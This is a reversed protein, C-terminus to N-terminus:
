QLWRAASPGSQHSRIFEAADVPKRVPTVVPRRPVRPYPDGVAAHWARLQAQLAAPNTACASALCSAAVASMDIGLRAGLGSRWQQWAALAARIGTLPDAIADGVFGGHGTATRLAASLGGAVGCDDGFGIWNAADGQTGHGTITIWVLGPKARLLEAADIGLQLLARPRAAEIVIDAGQLLNRLAALEEAVSFDLTLSTKGQNLLEYFSQDSDVLRDPRQRSEVKTVESGALWLLHAALPGAWLASLDVVRPKVRSSRTAPTGAVLTLCDGGPAAACEHEAAIALGLLRGRALLPQADSAAIASTIARADHLDRLEIDLLAPLSERDAPRALNLAISDDRAEYLQCGGGSAVRGPIHWNFLMAREGLLTSADLAAIGSSGSIKALQRLWANAAAALPFTLAAM